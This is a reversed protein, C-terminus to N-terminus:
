LAAAMRLWRALAAALQRYGARNPHVPDAMLAPNTLVEVFATAMTAGTRAAVAAFLPDAAIEGPRPVALLLVSVGFSHATAVMARLNERIRDRPVDQLFDNIGLCLILLEPRTAALVAPLRRRGQATTEGPVGANIVERDIRQQLMQPYGRGSGGVGATLSDGFALITASQTLQPLGGSSAAAGCAATAAALGAVLM